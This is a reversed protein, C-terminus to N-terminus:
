RELAPLAPINRQYRDGKVRSSPSAAKGAWAPVCGDTVLARDSKVRALPTPFYTRCHKTLTPNCSALIAVRESFSGM